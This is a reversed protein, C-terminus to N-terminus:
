DTRDRGPKPAQRIIKKTQTVLINSHRSSNISFPKSNKIHINLEKKKFRSLDKFVDRYERL